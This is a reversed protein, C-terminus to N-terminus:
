GAAAGQPDASASRAADTGADKGADTQRQTAADTQGGDQPTDANEAPRAEDTETDNGSSEDSNDDPSNTDSTEWAATNLLVVDGEDLGFEVISFVDDSDGLQIARREPGDPTEVWCFTQDSREVVAAVPILLVDTHEAVTIEVEASMGPRLWEEAPLSIETDYRVQNGTWWGAPKTISAVESVTGSLTGESLVVRATQGAQVRKVVDEHVGVKVQMRTLDPMLLLLQDKHVNTGEAIPGSEWRAANPHIVLGSREAYIVCHQLEDMARDRRSVDAEARQTNANHRASISELEGRLTQMQEKRTYNRLVHLETQQLKLKRRMQDVRFESEEVDLEGSYGSNAMTRTQQLRDIANRLQSETVALEKEMSLVQTPYRGLEYEEIAIEARTKNAASSDAASQSWNAYKTREDIQEEIALADLRVLEDGAKVESGSDIIWLVANWGRVQSKIELNTTSELMGQEQVTVTLNGRQIRHTLRRSSEPQAYRSAVLVAGALLLM